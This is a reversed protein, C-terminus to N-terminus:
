EKEGRIKKRKVVSKGGKKEKINKENCGGRRNKGKKEGGKKRARRARQPEGKGVTCGSCVLRGGVAFWGDV